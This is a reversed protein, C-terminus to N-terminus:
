LAAGLALRVAAALFRLINTFTVRGAMGIM